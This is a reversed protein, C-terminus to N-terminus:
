NAISLIRWDNGEKKMVYLKDVEYVELPSDSFTIAKQRVFVEISGDQLPNFRPNDLSVIVGYLKNTDEQQNVYEQAYVSSMAKMDFELVSKMMQNLTQAIQLEDGEYQNEDIYHFNNINAEQLATDIEEKSSYTVSQPEPLGGNKNQQASEVPSEGNPSPSTSNTANTCGTLLPLAMLFVIFMKM